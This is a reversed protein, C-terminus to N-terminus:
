LRLHRSADTALILTFLSNPPPSSLNKTLSDTGEAKSFRGFKILFWWFSLFFSAMLSM